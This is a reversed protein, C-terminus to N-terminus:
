CDGPQRRTSGCREHEPAGGEQGGDVLAREDVVEPLPVLLELRLLDDRVDDLHGGVGCLGVDFGHGFRGFLHFWEDFAFRDPEAFLTISTLCLVLAAFAVAGRRISNVLTPQVTGM